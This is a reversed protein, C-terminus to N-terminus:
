KPKILGIKTSDIDIQPYLDDKTNAIGDEGSSFLTYKDGIKWYNYYPSKKQFNAPIPDHIFTFPDNELLQPLSDPYQGHQIKYFEVKEVLANLKSQSIETFGSNNEFGFYFLSSYLIVTFLIGSIGIISLKKDKYKALGQILLIIGVIAGILPILCLFGLKYPPKQAPLITKNQQTQKSKIKGQIFGFTNIMENESSFARKPILIFSHNVLFFFMCEKNIEVSVFSEWRWFDKGTEKEFSLGDDAVEVLIENYKINKIGKISKCYPIVLLFVIMILVIMLCGILSVIWNFSEGGTFGGMIIGIMISILIIQLLRKQLEKKYFLKYFALYDEKTSQYKEM